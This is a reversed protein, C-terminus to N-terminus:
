ESTREKSKYEASTSTGTGISTAVTVKVETTEDRFFVPYYYTDENEVLVLGKKLLDMLEMRSVSTKHDKDYYLVNDSHAHLVVKNVYVDKSDAYIADHKVM